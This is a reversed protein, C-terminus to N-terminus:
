GDVFRLSTFAKLRMLLLRTVRESMMVLTCPSLNAGMAGCRGTGPEGSAVGIRFTTRSLTLVYPPTKFLQFATRRQALNVAATGRDGISVIWGCRATQTRLQLTGQARHLGPMAPPPSRHRRPSSGHRPPRVIIKTSQPNM